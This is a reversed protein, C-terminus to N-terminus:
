GSRMGPRTAWGPTPRTTTWEAACPGTASPAAALVVERRAADDAVVRQRGEPRAGGVAQAPEVPERVRAVEDDDSRVVRRGALDDRVLVEDPGVAPETAPLALREQEMRGVERDAVSREDARRRDMVLQSLPEFGEAAAGCRWVVPRGTGIVHGLRVRRIRRFPGLRRIHGFRPPAFRDAGVGRGLEPRASATASRCAAGPGVNAPRVSAPRM